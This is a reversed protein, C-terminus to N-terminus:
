FCTVSFSGRLLALPHWKPVALFTSERLGLHWIPMHRFKHPNHRNKWGPRGSIWYDCHILPCHLLSTGQCQRGTSIFGDGNFFRAQLSVGTDPPLLPWASNVHM